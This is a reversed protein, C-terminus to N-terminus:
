DHPRFNEGYFRKRKGKRADRMLLAAEYHQGRNARALLLGYLVPLHSREGVFRKLDKKGQIARLRESTAERVGEVSECQRLDLATVDQHLIEELTPIFPALKGRMDGVAHLALLRFAIYRASPCARLRELYETRAQESIPPLLALFVKFAEKYNKFDAPPAEPAPSAPQEPTQNM